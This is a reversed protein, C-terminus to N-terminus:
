LPLSPPPWPLFSHPIWHLTYWWGQPSLAEVHLVCVCGWRSGPRAQSHVELKVLYGLSCAGLQRIDAVFFHLWLLGKVCRNHVCLMSADSQCLYVRNHRTKTFLNSLMRFYLRLYYELLLRISINTVFLYLIIFNDVVDVPFNKDWTSIRFVVFYSALSKRMSFYINRQTHFSKRLIIRTVSFM